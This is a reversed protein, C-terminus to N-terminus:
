LRRWTAYSVSLKGASESIRNHTLGLKRIKEFNEGTRGKPHRGSTEIVEVFTEEAYSDPFASLHGTEGQPM